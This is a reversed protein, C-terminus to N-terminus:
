LDLREIKTGELSVGAMLGANTMAFAVVPEKATNTDIQGNAGVTAVAVTADVGATWGSSNRFRELAEPTMFLIVVARSQAGAQLGVSGSSSTYYGAKKGGVRLVGRGHEIGVIFGGSVNEPFVLVGHARSVYDQSGPVTQYLRQLTADAAQDIGARQEAPTAQNDPLTTTCAGLGLAAAVAVAALSARTFGYKDKEM